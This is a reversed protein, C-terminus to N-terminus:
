NVGILCEDLQESCAIDKKEDSDARLGDPAL